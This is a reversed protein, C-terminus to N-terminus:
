HSTLAGKFKLEKERENEGNRGYWSKVNRIFFCKYLAPPLEYSKKCYKTTMVFIRRVVLNEDEGFVFNFFDSSNFFGLNGDFM